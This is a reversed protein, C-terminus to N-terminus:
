LTLTFQVNLHILRLLDHFASILLFDATTNNCLPVRDGMNHDSDAMVRVKACACLVCYVCVACARVCM